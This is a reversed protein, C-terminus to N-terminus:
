AGTTISSRNLQLTSSFERGRNTLNHSLGNVYWVGSYGEMDTILNVQQGFQIAPNFRVRIACSLNSPIPYGLLNDDKSITLLQNVYPQGIPSILIKTDDLKFQFGYDACASQLQQLASGQYLVNNVQQNDAGIIVTSYEPLNKALTEFLTKLSTNDRIVLANALMGSVEWGLISKILVPRSRNPNNFDVTSTYIDGKYILPPMGDSDVEYGAFIEIKSVPKQVDTLYSNVKILANIDNILMGNITAIAESQQFGAVKNVMVSVTLSENDSKARIIKINSGNSSPYVKDNLIIKLVIHRTRMTDTM